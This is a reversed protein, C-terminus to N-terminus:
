SGAEINIRRQKEWVSHSSRRGPESDGSALTRVLSVRLAAFAGVWEWLVMIMEVHGAIGQVREANAREGRSRLPLDCTRIKDPPGCM